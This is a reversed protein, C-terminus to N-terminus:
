FVLIALSEPPKRLCVHSLTLIKPWKGQSRSIYTHIYIHVQVELVSRIAARQDMATVDLWFYLPQLSPGDEAQQALRGYKANPDWQSGPVQHNVIYTVKLKSGEM